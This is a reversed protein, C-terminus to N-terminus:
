AKKGINHLFQNAEELWKSTIGQVIVARQILDIAEEFKEKKNKTM